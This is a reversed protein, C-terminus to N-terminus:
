WIPLLHTNQFYTSFNRQLGQMRAQRKVIIFIMERSLKGGRRNLFVVDEAGKKILIKKRLGLYIVLSDIAPGGIPVLRQKSGKGTVKLFGDELYLNSIKLNVLESVRLGCSYLVEFITKTETDRKLQFILLISYIKM